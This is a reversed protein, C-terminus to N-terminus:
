KKVINHGKQLSPIYVKLVDGGYHFIKIGDACKIYIDNPNNLEGNKDRCFDNTRQDIESM